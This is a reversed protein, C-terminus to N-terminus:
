EIEATVHYFSGAAGAPCDVYGPLVVTDLLTFPGYANDAHYVHYQSAGPVPDWSLTICGSVPDWDAGLVVGSSGGSGPYQAGAPASLMAWSGGMFFEFASTEEDLTIRLALHQGEPITLPEASTTYNHHWYGTVGELYVAPGPTFESGDWVGVELLLHPHGNYMYNLIGTWATSDATDGAPFLIEEAAAEDAIWLRSEGPEMQLVGGEIGPDNHYMTNGMGLYWVGTYYAAPLAMLPHPDSIFDQVFPTDGFGDGDADVGSYTDFYNGPFGKSDAGEYSMNLRMPAYWHLDNGHAPNLQTTNDAITNLFVWHDLGSYIEIGYGSNHQVSNGSFRSRYFGSLYAGSESNYNFSNGSINLRGQQSMRMGYRNHDCTNGSFVEYGSNYSYYMGYDNYCLTNGHTATFTTAYLCIGFSSEYIASTNYNCTNYRIVSYDSGHVYVGGNENYNCTNNEILTHMADGRVYIGINNFHSPSWGCVCHHVWVGTTGLIDIANGYECGYFSIESM